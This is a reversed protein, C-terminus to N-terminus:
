ASRHRRDSRAVLLRLLFRLTPNVGNM